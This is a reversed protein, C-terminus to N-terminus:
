KPPATSLMRLRNMSAKKASGMMMMMPISAMTASPGDMPVTIMTIPTTNAGTMARATRADTNCSRSIFYTDAACSRLSRVEYMM